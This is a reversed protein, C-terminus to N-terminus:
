PKQLSQADQLMEIQDKAQDRIEEDPDSALAQLIPLAFKPQLEGLGDIASERVDKPQDAGAAATLIALKRDDLGDIDALSDVIETKLDPDKEVHFLRGLTVIAEPTETDTIKYILEVRQTFEPNANYTAEWSSLQQMIEPTSVPVAAPKAIPPTTPKGSVPAPKPLTFPAPKPTEAKTAPPAVPAPPEEEHKGCGVAVAAVVAVALSLKLSERIMRM